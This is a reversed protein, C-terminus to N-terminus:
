RPSKRYETLLVLRLRYSQVM